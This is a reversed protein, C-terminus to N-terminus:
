KLVHNSFILNQFKLLFLNIMLEWWFLFKLLVEVDDVSFFPVKVSESHNPLKTLGSIM